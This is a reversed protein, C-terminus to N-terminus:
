WEGRILAEFPWDEDIAGMQQKVVSVTVLLFLSMLVVFVAVLDMELRVSKVVDLDSLIHTTLVEKAVCNTLM